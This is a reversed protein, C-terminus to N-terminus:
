NGDTIKYGINRITKICNGANGLKQRLTKIHMDVTRNEGDYDYGWIWILIKDRSMVVGKNRMLYLLLEFEKYTLVVENKSVTVLRKEPNLVIEGVTLEDNKESNGVRRLVAKIRSIVEMVSFPKTIYDDAGTDLGKIKDYETGKATLMIVPIKETAPNAKLKKLISIGDEYPLLIDLLILDPIIKLTEAFFSKGDSFGMTEFGASKLAYILLERINDEDEVTFIRM